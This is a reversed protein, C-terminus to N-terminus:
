LPHSASGASLWAPVLLHSSVLVFNSAELRVYALIWFYAPLLCLKCIMMHQFAPSRTVTFSHRKM